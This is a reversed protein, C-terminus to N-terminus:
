QDKPVPRLYAATKVTEIMCYSYNHKPLFTGYRRGGLLDILLKCIDIPVNMDVLTAPGRRHQRKAGRSRAAASLRFFRENEVRRLITLLSSATMTEDRLSEHDYACRHYKAISTNNARIMRYTNPTALTDNSWIHVISKTWHVSDM